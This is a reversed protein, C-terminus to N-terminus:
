SANVSWGLNEASVDEEVSDEIANVEINDDGFMPNNSDQVNRQPVLVDIHGTAKLIPVVDTLIVSLILNLVDLKSSRIDEVM